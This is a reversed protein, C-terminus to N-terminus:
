SRWAFIPVRGRSLPLGLYTMLLSGVICGIVNVLFPTTQPEVVVVILSSKFVNVKLGLVAEYCRLVAIINRVESEETAGFLLTDDAFQLHTIVLAGRASCFGTILNANRAADIMRSLAEGVIAFLLPSLPDGQLLGSQAQFFGKPAGNILVSFHTTTVCERIWGRWKTGFGM